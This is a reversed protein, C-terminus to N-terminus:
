QKTLEIILNKYNDLKAQRVLERYEPTENGNLVKELVPDTYVGDIMLDALVSSRSIFTNDISRLSSIREIIAPDAATVLFAENYQYEVRLSEISLFLMASYLVSCIVSALVITPLISMIYKVGCQATDRIALMHLKFPTLYLLVNHPDRRVDNDTHGGGNRKLIGIVTPLLTEELLAIIGSDEIPLIIQLGDCYIGWENHMVNYNNRTNADAHTLVYTNKITGSSIVIEVMSLAEPNTLRTVTVSDYFIDIM